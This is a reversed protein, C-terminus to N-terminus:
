TRCCDVQFSAWRWLARLTGLGLETESGLQEATKDSLEADADEAALGAPLSTRSPRAINVHIAKVYLPDSEEISLM